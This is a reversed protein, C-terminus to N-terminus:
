NLNINEITFLLNIDKIRLSSHYFTISASGVPTDKMKIVRRVLEKGALTNKDFSMGGDSVIIIENPTM